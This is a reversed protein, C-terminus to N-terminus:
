APNSMKLHENLWAVIVQSVSELENVFLQTGHARGSYLRATINGPASGFIERVSDASYADAHSAILLASRESLAENVADVPAVGRYDLGPSLAIATMCGEDNACGMLALNSGISAGLTAVAAGNVSEQERLWDLWVQVDEEALTWDNSGGTAGHGRMDVTLVVYGADLLIPILAEYDDRQGGLMHMLLVAPHGQEARQEPVYFDGKLVLDDSASIEIITSEMMADEEQAIAPLILLLILFLVSFRRM